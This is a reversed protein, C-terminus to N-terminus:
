ARDRTGDKGKVDSDNAFGHCAYVWGDFGSCSATSWATRTARLRLRRLPGRAQRGQRRRRHRALQWINPISYVIRRRGPLPLVGIPINLGDAFTTVKRARGDPGFDDLIKVRTAARPRRRGPLSIRRHRHGLAPGPRRLRHQDAEPHGARRRRAPDRLRAAPPVDQARRGALPTRATAVYPPEAPVLGRVRAFSLVLSLCSRRLVVGAPPHRCQLASRTPKYPGRAAM